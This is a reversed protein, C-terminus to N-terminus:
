IGTSRWGGRPAKELAAAFLRRAGRELRGELVSLTKPLGEELATM